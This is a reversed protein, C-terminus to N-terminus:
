GFVLGVRFWRRDPQPLSSPEKRRGVICLSLCLHTLCIDMVVGTLQKLRVAVVCNQLRSSLRSGKLFLPIDLLSLRPTVYLVSDPRHTSRVFALSAILIMRGFRTPVLVSLSTQFWGLTRVLTTQDHRRFPHRKADLEEFDDTIVGTMVTVHNLLAKDYFRDILTGCNFQGLTLEAPKSM